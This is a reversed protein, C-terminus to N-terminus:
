LKLLDKLSKSRGMQKIKNAYIKLDDNSPRKSMEITDIKTVYSALTDSVTAQSALCMADTTDTLMVVRRWRYHELVKTLAEGLPRM